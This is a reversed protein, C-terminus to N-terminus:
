QLARQVLIRRVNADYMAQTIRGAERAERLRALRGDLPEYARALNVEYVRRSIKGDAFMSRMLAIREEFSPVDPEEPPPPPPNVASVDPVPAPEPEPEPEPPLPPAPLVPRVAVVRLARVNEEYAERTIRGEALAAKLQRLRVQPPVPSAPSATIEPSSGEGRNEAM